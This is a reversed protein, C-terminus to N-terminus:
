KYQDFWQKLIQNHLQNNWNNMLILIEKNTPKCRAIHELGKILNSINDDYYEIILTNQCTTTEDSPIYNIPLNKKLLYEKITKNDYYKFTDKRKSYETDILNVIDDIGSQFM